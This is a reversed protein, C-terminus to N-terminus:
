RPGLEEQVRDGYEEEVRQLDPQIPLSDLSLMASANVTRRRPSSPVM